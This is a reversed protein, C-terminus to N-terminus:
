AYFEERYESQAAIERLKNMAKYVSNDIVGRRVGLRAAAEEPAVGALKVMEFIEFQRFPIQNRLDEILTALLARRYAESEGASEEALTNGAVDLAGASDDRFGPNEKRLLTVVQASVILRLYTRLRGRSSDFRSFNKSFFDAVVHAAVEEVFVAPPQAGGTYRRYFAVAIVRIPEYYLSLFHRWSVQWGAANRDRLQSLLTAPTTPFAGPM